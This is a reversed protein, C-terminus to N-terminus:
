RYYRQRLENMPATWSNLMAIFKTLSVGRSYLFGQGLACGRKRLFEAQDETEIGEAVAKLGLSEAMALIMEVIAPAQRDTQLASVFQRDIKFVDFPLQTLMVLNSHGTGFDDIALGVGMERLPRMVEGVKHPDDIAMSETIELELLHPPLGSARLADIVSEAFDNQEFQRPSVNVAVPVNFGLKHWKAAAVCSANLIQRGIEDILGIEEAVGIFTGPMVVKGGHRYWRALAEAGMIRGSSFDIKPQFVPIFESNKVAARLEVELQFRGRQIRDFSPRYFQFSNRSSKRSEQLAMDARRFIEGPTKGDEPLMTVGASVGLTVLRQGIALPAEFASNLRQVIETIGDRGGSCEPLFLGFNDSQLNALVLRTGRSEFDSLVDAMREIAALLVKEDGGTGFSDSIRIFGDLDLLVFAGPVDVSMYALEAEMLEQLRNRNPLGTTPDSFAASHLKRNEAIVSATAEHFAARLAATEAFDNTPSETSQDASVMAEAYQTLHDLADTFQVSARRVIAVGALISFAGCALILWYPVVTLFPQAGPAIIYGVLEGNHVVDVRARDILREDGVVIQQNKDLALARGDLEADFVRQIRDTERWALDPAVLQSLEALRSAQRDSYTASSFALLALTSAAAAGITVGAFIRSMHGVISKGAYDDPSARNQAARNIGM